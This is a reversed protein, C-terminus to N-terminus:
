FHTPPAPTLWFQLDLHCHAEGVAEYYLLPADEVEVGEYVVTARKYVLKLIVDNTDNRFSPEYMVWTDPKLNLCGQAGHPRTYLKLEGSVNSLHAAIVKKISKFSTVPAPIGHPLSESATSPGAVAPSSGPEVTEPPRYPLPLFVITTNFGLLANREFHPCIDGAYACLGRYPGLSLVGVM